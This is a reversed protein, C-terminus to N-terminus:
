QSYYFSVNSIADVFNKPIAALIESTSMDAIVFVTIRTPDSEPTIASWVIVKPGAMTRRTVEHSCSFKHIPKNFMILEQECGNLVLMHVSALMNINFIYTNFINLFHVNGLNSATYVHTYSLDLTHINKLMTADFVDSHTLDLTHVHHLLLERAWAMNRHRYLLLSQRRNLVLPHVHSPGFYRTTRFLRGVAELPLAYNRLVIAIAALALPM